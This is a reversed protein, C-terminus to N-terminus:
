GWSGIEKSILILNKESWSNLPMGRVELAIKRKIIFDEYEMRRIGHLWMKVQEKNFKKLSEKDLFQLVFKWCTIEKVQIDVLGLEKIVEKLIIGSMPYRLFGILSIGMNHELVENNVVKFKFERKKGTFVENKGVFEVDPAERKESDLGKQKRQKKYGNELSVMKEKDKNVINGDEGSVSKKKGM